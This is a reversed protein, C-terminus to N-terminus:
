QYVKIDAGGGISVGAPITLSTILTGSLNLLGGISVNEAITLSTIPTGSLNLWGGISVGAPITLSTIPTYSLNLWGDISVGAPITLSTIPTYSLNLWGDYHNGEWDAAVADALQRRAEHTHAETWWEPKGADFVLQWSDNPHRLDVDGAPILEVPTHRNDFVGCTNEPIGNKARIVIHRDNWKLTYVRVTNEDVYVAEGSKYRCMKGRWIIMVRM